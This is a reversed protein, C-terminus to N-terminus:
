GDDPIATIVVGIIAHVVGSCLEVYFVIPATAYTLWVMCGSSNDPRALRHWVSVVVAVTCLWDSSSVALLGHLVADHISNAINVIM